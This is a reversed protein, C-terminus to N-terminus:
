AAFPGQFKKCYVRSVYFGSSNTIDHFESDSLTCLGAPVPQKLQGLLLLCNGSRIQASADIRRRPM